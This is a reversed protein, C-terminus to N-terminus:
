ITEVTRRASLLRHLSNTDFDCVASSRGSDRRDEVRKAFPLAHGRIAFRYTNHPLRSGNPKPMSSRLNQRM